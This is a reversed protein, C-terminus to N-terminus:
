PTASANLVSFFGTLAKAYGEPDAEAYNGHGAGAVSLLTKPQGAAAYLRDTIWRPVLEDSQGNILLLPRPAIKGIVREPVLEDMPLGSVRVALLAPWQTVFGFRRYEWRTHERAEHPSGAVAVARLRQDSSAVQTVIYGGMSFGFAGLRQREVDPQASLFDVAARLAQREPEGWVIQGTSQGHGPWDFALVGFGARALIRMESAMDSREGGSGHTVAIAAGNRSPAYYGKLTVGPAGSFSVERAGQIDLDALALRPPHARPVFASREARYARIALYAPVALLLSGFGLLLWTKSPRM